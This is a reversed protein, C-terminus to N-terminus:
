QRRESQVAPSPPVIEVDGNLFPLVNGLYELVRERMIRNAPLLGAINMALRRCDADSMAKSKGAM